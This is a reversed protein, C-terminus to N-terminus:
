RAPELEPQQAPVLTAPSGDTSKAYRFRRGNVTTTPHIGFHGDGFVRMRRELEESSIDPPIDCMAEYMRRTSKKGCWRIPLRQLPEAQAALPKALKWLLRALETFALRELALVGTGPPIDFLEVGVIPGADVQAIMAHATAGFRTAGDYTAFHSPVFGPYNPPGPHFNYAGYGLQDLIRRPVIVLTLFAILRARRLVRPEIAELGALTEATHVTLRPNHSRLLATITAREGPGTLLIATDFM